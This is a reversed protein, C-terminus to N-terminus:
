CVNGHKKNYDPWYGLKIRICNLYNGEVCKVNAEEVWKIRLNIGENEAFEQKVFKDIALTQSKNKHEKLRSHINISLGVYIYRVVGNIASGIAYIGEVTPAKDLDNAYSRWEKDLLRQCINSAMETATSFQM